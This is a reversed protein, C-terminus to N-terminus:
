IWASRRYKAGAVARSAWSLAALIRDYGQQQMDSKGEKGIGSNPGLGVAAHDAAAQTMGPPLAIGTTSGAGAGSSEGSAQQLVLRLLHWHAPGPRMALLHSHVVVVKGAVMRVMGQMMVQLLHLRAVQGVMLLVLVIFFTVMVHLLLLVVVVPVLVVVDLLLVLLDGAPGCRGGASV